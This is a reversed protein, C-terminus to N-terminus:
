QVSPSYVFSWVRWEGKYLVQLVSISGTLTDTQEAGDVSRTRTVSFEVRCSLSKDTYAVLDTTNKSDVTFSDYKPMLNVDRYSEMVGVYGATGEIMQAKLANYNDNFAQENASNNWAGGGCIYAIYSEAFKEAAAIREADFTDGVSYDFDCRVDYGSVSKGVLPLEYEGFKAMVNPEALYGTLVYKDFSPVAGEIVGLESVEYRGLATFGYAIDEASAGQMIRQDARIEKGNVYLVAGAPLIVSLTYKCEAPTDFKYNGGESSLLAVPTEGIKAEIEVEGFLKDVTWVSLRPLTGTGGDDLAGLEGDIEIRSAWEETLKIGSVYADVGVPVTVSISHMASEPYYFFWEGEGMQECVLSEGDLTASLEPTFYIDNFIYVDCPAVEHGVEAITLAPYVAYHKSKMSTEIDVGNVKLSAGAPVLIRYEPFNISDFYTIDFELRLAQWEGTSFLGVSNDAIILAAFHVGDSFLEYVTNGDASPTMRRLYTIEGLEFEPSLVDYALKSADEYKPYTNPLNLRLQQRWADIDKEAIYNEVFLDARGAERIECLRWMVVTLIGLILVAASFYALLGKLLAHAKPHRRREKGVFQADLGIGIKSNVDGRKGSTESMSIINKVKGIDEPNNKPFNKESM